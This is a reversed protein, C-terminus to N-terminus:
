FIIGFYVNLGIISSIFFLYKVENLTSLDPKNAINEPMFSKKHNSKKYFSHMNKKNRADM